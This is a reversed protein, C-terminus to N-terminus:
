WCRAASGAGMVGQTDLTWFQCPHDLDPTLRILRCHEGCSSLVFSVGSQEPVADPFTGTARYGQWLSEVSEMLQTQYQVARARDAAASFWQGAVMMVIGAIALAVLLEILSFGAEAGVAGAARGREM